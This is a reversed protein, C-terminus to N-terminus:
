TVSLIPNLSSAQGEFPAATRPKVQSHCKRRAPLNRAARSPQFFVELDSRKALMPEARRIPGVIETRILGAIAQRIKNMLKRKRWHTEKRDSNFQRVRDRHLAKLVGIRALMLRAGGTEAAPILHEVAIQWIV